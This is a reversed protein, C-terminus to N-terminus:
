LSVSRCASLAAYRVAMEAACIRTKVTTCVDCNCVNWDILLEIIIGGCRRLVSAYAIIRTQRIDRVDRRLRYCLGLFVLIPVSTSLYGVDCTVRVASELDVQLPRPCITAAEWM